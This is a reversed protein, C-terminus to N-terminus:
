NEAWSKADLDENRFLDFATGHYTNKGSRTTFSEVGGSTRGFEAPLTSTAVKFEDLAEVGPSSQDLAAGSAQNYISAGDILVESGFNQGGTIKSEFTGNPSNDSNTGPGATGPTLFAFASASRLFSQGSAALALPLEEIQKKDVVTGIEANSAQVSPADANVTITDKVDGLEMAFDLTSITNIQVSVGTKVATKFGPANVTVNYSGVLVDHILYGGTPGTTATYVSGTDAGRAYIEAGEVVSGSGDLVTGAISGNESQASAGMGCLLVVASVALAKFLHSVLHSTKLLKSRMTEGPGCPIGPGGEVAARHVACWFIRADGCIAVRRYVGVAFDDEHTFDIEYM